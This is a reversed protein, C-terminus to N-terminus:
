FGGTLALSYEHWSLPNSNVRLVLDVTGGTALQPYSTSVPIRVSYFGPTGVPAPAMNVYSPAQEIISALTFVYGNHATDNADRIHLAIQDPTTFETVNFNVLLDLEDGHRLVTVERIQVEAAYSGSVSGTSRITTDDTAEIFVGIGIVLGLMVLAGSILAACGCGKGTPQTARANPLVAHGTARAHHPESTNTRVSRGLNADIAQELADRSSAAARMGSSDPRGATAQVARPERPQPALNSLADIM